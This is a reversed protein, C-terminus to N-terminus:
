FEAIVERVVEAVTPHPFVVQKFEGVTYGLLHAMTEGGGVTMPIHDVEEGKAYAMMREMGSMKDTYKEYEIRLENIDM